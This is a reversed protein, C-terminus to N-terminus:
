QATFTGDEKINVTMLLKKDGKSVTHSFEKGDEKGQENKTYVLGTVTLSQKPQKPSTEKFLAYIKYEGAIVKSYQRVAEQNTRFDNGFLKTKSRGSDWEGIQSNRRKAPAATVFQSGKYVFIDVNDEDNAWSIEFAAKCPNSPKVGRYTASTSTSSSNLATQTPKSTATQTTASQQVSPNTAVIATSSSPKSATPSPPCNPCVPCPRNPPCTPCDPCKKMQELVGYDSIIVLLTDGVKKNTLSDVISGWVQKHLTDFRMAAQVKNDPASAGGGKPVIIFLFIVAKLAASLLNLFSISNFAQVERRAM